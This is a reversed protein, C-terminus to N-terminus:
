HFSTRLSINFSADPSADVKIDETLAFDIETDRSMRWTGGFSLQLVDGLFPSDVGEYFNTHWDFQLKVTAEPWLKWQLGAHGFAVQDTQYRTLVEGEGPLLLGVSASGELDDAARWHGAAWLAADAAGSGTLKSGEGSPMKVDAAVSYAAQDTRHLQRSLTLRLDGIGSQVSDIYLPQAGERRFAFLLRDRPQSSREGEPMGFIEHFRDIPRDMFGPGHEIWPLVLRLSWRESLGRDLILNVRHTEGDMFLLEDPSADINLTNSINVSATITGSGPVPLRADQPLPLGYVATLPNQDVTLLPAGWAPNCCLLAAILGASRLSPSEPDSRM